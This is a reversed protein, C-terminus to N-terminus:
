DSRKEGVAEKWAQEIGPALYFSRFARVLVEDEGAFLREHAPLTTEQKIQELSKGAAVAARVESRTADLLEALQRLYADDDMVPGHGPVIKAPALARMAALVEIWESHFSGFSYPTPAVVIDGTALTRSAEDWVVIDGTTNALGLYRVAVTRGGLDLTLDGTITLDPPSWHTELGDPLWQRILAANLPYIERQRDTLPGGQLNVGTVLSQELREPMTAMEPVNKEAWEAYNIAGLRATEAHQIVTLGPWAQEFVHNALLHDGHWHTNVLYKVPPAGSAGIAEVIRRALRPYQGADVLLSHREGSILVINGQVLGGPSPNAIYATVGDAVRITDFDQRFPENASAPLTFLAALALALPYRTM